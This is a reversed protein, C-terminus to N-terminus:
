SNGRGPAGTAGDDEDDALDFQERLMALDEDSPPAFMFTGPPLDDLGMIWCIQRLTNDVLGANDLVNRISHVINAAAHGWRAAQKREEATAIGDGVRRLLEHLQEASLEDLARAAQEELTIIDPLPQEESNETM